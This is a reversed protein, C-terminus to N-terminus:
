KAGKAARARAATFCAEISYGADHYKLFVEWAEAAPRLREVEARAEALDAGANRLGAKLRHVDATLEASIKTEAVRERIAEGREKTLTEIKAMLENLDSRKISVHTIEKM